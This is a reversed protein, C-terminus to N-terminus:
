ETVIVDKINVKSQIYQNEYMFDATEQLDAIVDDTFEPNWYSFTKDFATDNEYQEFSLTGDSADAFAQYVANPDTAASEQARKLATQIATVIEPSEKILSDKAVIVFDSSLKADDGSVAIINGTSTANQVYYLYQTSQAIVDIDGSIFLSALDTSANVIEVDDTTLGNAALEDVLFKYAVTGVITGVKKGKLDAVSSIGDKALLGLQQRTSAVAIIKTDPNNAIYTIAPFDGYIAADAHGAALAENVGVGATAFGTYEVTYGIKNLEEEIYGNHDAWFLSESLAASGDTTVGPTALRITKLEKPTENDTASATEIPDAAESTTGTTQETTTKENSDAKGCGVVGLALTGVLIATVLKKARNKLREKRM